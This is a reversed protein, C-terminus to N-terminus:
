KERGVFEFYDRFYGNYYDSHGDGLLDIGTYFKPGYISFRRPDTVFFMLRDTDSSNEMRSMWTEVSVASKYITDAAWWSGRGKAKLITSVHFHWKENELSGVAWIKRIAEPAINRRVAEHHILSARGFCFGFCEDPDYHSERSGGNVPHNEMLKVYFDAAERSLARQREQGDSPVPERLAKKIELNHNHIAQTGMVEQIELLSGRATRAEIEDLRSRFNGQHSGM